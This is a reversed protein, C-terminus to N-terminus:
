RPARPRARRRAAKRGTPRASRTSASPWPRRTVHRPRMDPYIRAASHLAARRWGSPLARTISGDRVFGHGSPLGVIGEMPHRELHHKAVHDVAEAPFAERPVDRDVAETDIGADSRRELVQALCRPRPRLDLRDIRTEHGPPRM